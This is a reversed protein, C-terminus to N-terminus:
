FQFYIFQQPDFGVGYKGYVFIVIVAGMMVFWRFWLNQRMLFADITVREKYRVLDVLFLLVLGFLLVNMEVRDLGLTYIEGNFIIAITKDENYMPQSGNKLDVISLRRHGLAINNDVFYGEGDPGRHKILDAMKKIIEKKEKKNISDVFGIFGCM